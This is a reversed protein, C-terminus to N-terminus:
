DALGAAQAIFPFVARTIDSITDVIYTPFIGLVLIGAITVVLVVKLPVNPKIRPFEKVPDSIYMRKLILLYYFLSVISNLAAVIVLWLYGAQMASYFLYFKGVFGALPPIGALSLLALLFALALLPERRALGSYDDLEDSGTVRSFAIVVAFAAVNTFLYAILYFIVSGAAAAPAGVFGVLIYGAQSISSYALIRKVNRQPIAVLNGITMTLVAAAMFVPTWFGSLSAFTGFFLRMVFVFGAAKSVVSIYLTVPTPAGQYTDPTWVHMPVMSLKFGAGILVLLMSLVFLPNNSLGAARAAIGDLYTTGCSAYALSLGYLLVGSSLAGLVLYKLGAELSQADKRYLATLGFLSITGTELGVYMSILERSSVLVMLGLSSSLLLAMYASLYRDKVRVTGVSALATFLLGIAIVIKSIWSLGDAVFSGGFLEGIPRYAIALISLGACGAVFLIWLLLKSKKLFFDLLIVSAALCATCIELVVLELSM